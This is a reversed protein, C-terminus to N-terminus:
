VSWTFDIAYLIYVFQLINFKHVLKIFISLRQLQHETLPSSDKELLIDENNLDSCGFIMAHKKWQFQM